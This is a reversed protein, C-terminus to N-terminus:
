VLPGKRGIVSNLPDNDDGSEGEGERDTLEDGGFRQAGFNFNSRQIEHNPLPWRGGPFSQRLLNQSISIM